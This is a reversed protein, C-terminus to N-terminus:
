GIPATRGICAWRESRWSVELDCRCIENFLEKGGGEVHQAYLLRPCASRRVLECLRAKRKILPTRRLDVGNIWLLDFVYLVAQNAYSYLVAQNAYRGSLLWNFQSVGNEDLCVIEGDIFPTAGNRVSDRVGFQNQLPNVCAQRSSVTRWRIKFRSRNLPHFV